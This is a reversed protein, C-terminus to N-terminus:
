AGQDRTTDDERFPDPTHSCPPASIPRPTYGSTQGGILAALHLIHDSTRRNALGGIQSEHNLSYRESLGSFGESLYSAVLKHLVGLLIIPRYNRPDSVDGKKFLLFFNPRQWGDVMPNSLHLNMVRWVWHRVAEPCVSLIYFNLGDEGGAKGHAASSLKQVFWGCSAEELPQDPVGVPCRPLRALFPELQEDSPSFDPQGAM